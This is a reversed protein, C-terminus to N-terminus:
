EKQAVPKKEIHVMDPEVKVIKITEPAEVVISRTNKAGFINKAVSARIEKELVKPNAMSLPVELTVTVKKPSAMSDEAEDEDLIIPLPLSMTKRKIEVKQIIDVSSPTIDVNGTIALVRKKTTTGESLPEELFVDLVTEEIGGILESGGRVLVEDPEVGVQVIYDPSIKKAVHLVVPITKEVLTDVTLQIRSPSVDMIEIGGSLKIRDVPVLVVNKGKSVSSLDIILVPDRDSATRLLGESARVRVTVKNVLGESIVLDSPLGSYDLRVDIYSEIKESGTIGYWLFIALFVAIILERLQIAM